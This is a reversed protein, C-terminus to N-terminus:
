PKSLRPEIGINRSRAVVKGLPWCPCRSHSAARSGGFQLLLVPLGSDEVTGACCWNVGERVCSPGSWPAYTVAKTNPTAVAVQGPKGHFECDWNATPRYIGGCHGRRTDWVRQVRCTQPGPFCSVTAVGSVGLLLAPPACSELGPRLGPSVLTEEWSGRCPRFFPLSLKVICFKQRGQRPQVALAPEGMGSPPVTPWMRGGRDPSGDGQM